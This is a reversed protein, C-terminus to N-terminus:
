VAELQLVKNVKKTKSILLSEKLNIIATELRPQSYGLANALEVLQIWRRVREKFTLKPNKLSIWNSLKNFDEYEPVIELEQRMRELPTNELIFTTYGFTILNIIGAQAYVQYKELGQLNLAHDQETETPYGTIMLLVNPIYYKGCMKLHFDLDQNTFKKDMEMRVRESFTEVGVYLYDCGAQKMERYDQETFHQQARVIFQGKYNIKFDPDQQQLQILTKNMTRFERLSGNILSDTFEFSHIKTSRWTHYLENALSEGTRYRYKPSYRAVDCYTCKRVCGRSGNIYLEPWQVYNYQWPDVKKYSPYPYQDLNEIQVTDYNNIGPTLTHGKLLQRFIHEGEGYMYYDILKKELMYECLIGSEELIHDVPEQIGTGGIAIKLDCRQPRSNIEQILEVTAHASWKTFVSIVFWNMGQDLVADVFEKTLQLFHQFYPEQRETNSAFKPWNDDLQKWEELNMRRYLWLNFDFFDYDLNLEECAAALIPIAAPPRVLDQRPMSILAIKKNSTM